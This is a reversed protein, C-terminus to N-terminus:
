DLASIMRDLIMVFLDIDDDFQLFPSKGSDKQIDVGNGYPTFDLIKQLRINTNKRQGMFILRKNTLFARGADVHALVDDSVRQVAIDGARWYIGKALRIRATPGSYRIRKTVKRHEYWDVAAAFYCHESKQLRIGADITPVDGNEILWYLRFRELQRSTHEDLTVSLGLSRAIAEIEEGEDPSLREDAVAQDLRRQLLAKASQQYIRDAIEEPLRLRTQLSQLFQREEPELEGDAIAEGVSEEYLISAVTEHITQATRDQLGFLSKLHQLDDLEESSLERDELCHELYDGYLQELESRFRSTFHTKYTEAIDEVDAESVDRVSTSSALLNNTDVIANRTSRRRLIKDLVTPRVLPQITFPAAM